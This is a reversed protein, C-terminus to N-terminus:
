PLKIKSPRNSMKFTRFTYHHLHDSTILFFFASFCRVALSPSKEVHAPSIRRFLVPVTHSDGHIHLIRTVGRQLPIHNRADLM